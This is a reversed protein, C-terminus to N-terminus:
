AGTLTKTPEANPATKIRTARLWILGTRVVVEGIAMLVLAATWASGTTIHHSASFHALQTAGGNSAWMGFGLRFGMSLVWTGAAIWGAKVLPQGDADHRIRTAMASIVGFIVGVAAFGVILVLDNGTTPIGHLYQTAVVVSIALPLVMMKPSFRSERVQRFVIAILAIDLLYDSFTM